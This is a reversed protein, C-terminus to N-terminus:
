SWGSRSAVIVRSLSGDFSDAVVTIVNAGPSLTLPGTSPDVGASVDAGTADTVTYARGDITIDNGQAVIDRYTLKSGNTQNVIYVNALPGQLIVVPRTSEDGRNTITVSTITTPVWNADLPQAFTMDTTVTDFDITGYVVVSNPVVRDVREYNSYFIPDDARMTVQFPERYTGGRMDESGSLAAPRRVDRLVLDCPDIASVYFGDLSGGGFVQWNAAPGTYLAVGVGFQLAETASLTYTETVAPVGTNTPESTWLEMTVLNSGDLRARIWYTANPSWTAAVTDLQTSAGNIMKYLKLAGTGGPNEAQVYLGNSSDKAKLWMSAFSNASAVSAGTRWKTTVQLQKYSVGSATRILSVRGAVPQSIGEVSTVTVDTWWVDMTGSGSVSDQRLCVKMTAANAPAVASVDCAVQGLGAVGVMANSSLLSGASDYWELAIYTNWSGTGSVVDAIASASYTRGPQVGVATSRALSYQTASGAGSVRLATSAVAGLISRVGSSLAASSTSGNTWGTTGSSFTGNISPTIGPQLTGPSATGSTDYDGLYSSAFTDSVDYRNFWLTQAVRSALSAKMRQRLNHLAHTNGARLKGELTINRAGRFLSYSDEGDAEPKTERTDRLESDMLGDISELKALELAYRSNFAFGNYWIQDHVGLPLSTNDLVFTTAVSRTM